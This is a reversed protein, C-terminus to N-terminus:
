QVSRLMFWRQQGLGMSCSRLFGWFLQLSQALFQLWSLVRTSHNRLWSRGVLWRCGLSSIFGLLCGLPRTHLSQGIGCFRRLLGRLFTRAQSASIGPGLSDHIQILVGRKGLSHSPVFMIRASAICGMATLHSTLTAAREFMVEGAM